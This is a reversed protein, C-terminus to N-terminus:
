NQTELKYFRTPLENPDIEELRSVGNTDSVKVGLSLWNSLNTSASVQNTQGAKFVYDVQVNRSPVTTLNLKPALEFAGIDCALGKPRSVGRQDAPPCVSDDGADIAPSSPLLAM